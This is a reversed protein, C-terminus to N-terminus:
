KRVLKYLYMGKEKLEKLEDLDESDCSAQIEPVEGNIPIALIYDPPKETM